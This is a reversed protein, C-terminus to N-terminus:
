ICIKLDEEYRSGWIILRPPKFQDCLILAVLTSLTELGFWKASSWSVPISGAVRTVPGLIMSFQEQKKIGCGFIQLFFINM